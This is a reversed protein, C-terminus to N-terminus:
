QVVFEGYMVSWHGPFSCFFRYDGGVELAAPSFSITDSEGGGVIKTHAIVREDGPVLYDNDLGANMGEMAVAQYDATRTLVWNHGMTAKPLQGSHSLTVDITECSADAVMQKIQFAMSDDVAIEFDCAAQALGTCLLLCAATLCRSATRPRRPPPALASRPRSASRGCGTRDRSLFHM